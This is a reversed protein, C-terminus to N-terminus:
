SHCWECVLTNTQGTAFDEHQEDWEPPHPICLWCVHNGGEVHWGTEEAYEDVTDKDSWASYMDYEHRHECRDCIAWYFPASKITM